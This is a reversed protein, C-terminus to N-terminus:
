KGRILYILEEDSLNLAKCLRLIGSYSPTRRGIEYAAIQTANIKMIEGLGEQTLNRKTRLEKIRDKIM